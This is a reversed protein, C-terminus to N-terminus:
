INWTPHKNQPIIYYCNDIIYVVPVKLHITGEEKTRFSAIESQRRNFPQSDEGGFQAVVRMFYITSPELGSLQLTYDVNLSSTDTTSSILDSRQTLNYRDTGYQIYYQEQTTFSPIIWLM